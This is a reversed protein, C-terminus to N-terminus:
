VEDHGGDCGVDGGRRLVRSGELADLEEDDAADHIRVRGVEAVDPGERGGLVDSVRVPRLPVELIGGGDEHVVDCVVDRCVEGVELRLEVGGEVRHRRRSRTPTELGRRDTRRPSSMSRGPLSWAGM